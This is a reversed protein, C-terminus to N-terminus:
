LRIRNRIRSRMDVTCQLVVFRLLLLWAGWGRPATSLATASRRTLKTFTIFSDVVIIANFATLHRTGGRAADGIVKWEMELRANWKGEETVFAFLEMCDRLM